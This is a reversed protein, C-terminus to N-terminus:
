RKRTQMLDSQPQRYETGSEYRSEEGRFYGLINVNQSVYTRSQLFRPNEIFIGSSLFGSWRRASTVSELYDNNFIGGATLLNPGGSPEPGKECM